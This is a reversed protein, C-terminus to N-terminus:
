ERIRVAITATLLETGNGAMIAPRTWASLETIQVLAASTISIVNGFPDHLAHYHGNSTTTADNSGQVTVNTTGSFIGEVQISRDVLDGRAIPVFTDGMTFPGWQVIEIDIPDLVVISPSILPM